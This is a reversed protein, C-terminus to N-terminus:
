GRTGTLEERRQLYWAVFKRLGEEVPTSPNYDLDKRARTVDASTLSVDGPQQPLYDIKAAKGLEKEILRITEIVKVTRGGGLNYINYGDARETAAVCGQTIDDVYTFDREASGDGYVQLTQGEDIARVFKHFAMEPRQRPGYVTFFRLCTVAFGYLHHHTYCLLEGAKKTAAYPSVPFDVNDSEQFAAGEREGYVSSSSAFVFRPVNHRRAWELLVITGGLNVDVYLEPQELSPRVGARAALHVIADFAGDSALRDLLASDRIDGEVFRFGNRSTLSALNAKKIAPDYYPDFSDLGVVEHDRHLLSEALQSGIFGAAGTILVRM